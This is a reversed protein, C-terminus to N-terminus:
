ALNKSLRENMAFHPIAIKNVNNAGNSISNAFDFLPSKQFNQNLDKWLLVIIKLTLLYQALPIRGKVDHGYTIL